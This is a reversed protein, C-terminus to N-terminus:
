GSIVPRGMKAPRVRHGYLLEIEDQFRNNGLALGKNVTLRINNILESDVHSKFFSRYVEQRIKENKDLKLYEAHPSHMVVKKGLGHAQYSSWSYESPDEVMAARVPNLEIYRQCQLFYYESQVMSSKFRGEWLTGTRKYERNFYRVYCRGVSQMMNSVGSEMNPTVLFHVHNTMFVWAHISVDFKISYGQLLHAYFAMDQECVFSVQRNNGRQINHQPIGVPTFRNLRAM